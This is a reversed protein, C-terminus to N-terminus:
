VLQVGSVSLRSDVLVAFAGARALGKRL